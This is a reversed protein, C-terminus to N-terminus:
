ANPYFPIGTIIEGTDTSAVFRNFDDFVNMNVDTINGVITEGNELVVLDFMNDTLLDRQYLATGAGIVVRYQNGDMGAVADTTPLQVVTFTVGGDWSEAVYAAAGAVLVNQKGLVVAATLDGPTGPLNGSIDSIDIIDNSLRGKLLTGSECALFFNLTDSDYSGSVIADAAPLNANTLETFSSGKDNSLWVVAAGAVTHGVALISNSVAFFDLIVDDIDPVQAWTAGDDISVWVQAATAASSDAADGISALHVNGDNYVAYGVEAAIGVTPNTVTNFRDPTEVITPAAIADGGAALLGLGTNSGCGPCDESQFTVGNLVVAADYANHWALGWGRVEGSVQLDASFELLNQDENATIIDSTAVAPNLVGDEYIDWHNYQADSPCIYKKFFTNVCGDRLSEEMVPTWIAAPLGITLTSFTVQAARNVRAVPRIMGSVLEVRTYILADILNPSPAGLSHGLLDVPPSTPGNIGEMMFLYDRSGIGEKPGWRSPTSPSANSM